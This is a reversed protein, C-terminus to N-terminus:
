LVKCQYQVVASSNSELEVVISNLDFGVSHGNVTLSNPIYELLDHLLDKARVTATAELEKSKITVTYTAVEGKHYSTKDSTKEFSIAEGIPLCEKTITNETEFSTKENNVYVDATFTNTIITM